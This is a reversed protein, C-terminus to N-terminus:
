NRNVRITIRRNTIVTGPIVTLEVEDSLVPCIVGSNELRVRYREGTLSIDTPNITLTATDVGSIPASNTLDVWSSGDYRQWQYSDATGAVVFSVSCGSCATQDSPQTAITPAGAGAELFDFDGNSNTDAPLTYPAGQVSGDPNVAPTGTGYVGDGDPDASLSDYAENADNCNDNDSDTDLRNVIGDNDSDCGGNDPYLISFPIATKSITSSQYSVSLINGGTREFFLVEITHFGVTLAIDGSRERNGHAGDNDVVQTGDIFLKSGDDSSTYFTYTDTADIFIYGTYRISYREGDGPDVLNQLDTVSFSTYTGTSLAGTTPINDVTDGTPSLDYFEYNLEGNCNTEQSDLIGDNDDDVDVSDIVGDMDTDYSPDRYDVEAVLPNQLNPLTSPTNVTGNPDAYDPLGGPLTSNTTDVTNDLGDGDSDTSSLSIAAETNDSLGDGDSDLNVFDLGTSILTNYISIGEGAGPVSEYADDLGNGDSDTGSPPIYAFTDQAEVNDPIGDNDSDLDLENTLGDNDFDCSVGPSLIAFSLASKAISPSEYSVELIEGGTNEFVEVVLPYFGPNLFISGSRERVGHLGDNDVVEAGNIYLKSGDDSSTYFTYTAAVSVYISGTYRIAFQESDGPDVLAQLADIDFDTVTGTALAGTTPINDVTNGSPVSDYFEYSLSGSCGLIEDTDLIGDNDDDIDTADPVSDNDSDQAQATQTGLFFVLLFGLLILASRNWKMM